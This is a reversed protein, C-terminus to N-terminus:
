RTGHPAPRAAARPAPGDSRRRAYAGVGVALPLVALLFCPVDGWGESLLMGVIGAAAVAAMLVIGGLRRRGSM